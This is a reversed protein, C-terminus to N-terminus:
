GLESIVLGAIILGAGFFGTRTFTEGLFLYAFVSAFVPETAYILAARTTLVNKQYTNQIYINFVTAILAIYLIAFLLHGNWAPPGTRFFMLPVCLATTVVFEYFLLAAPDRRRTYINTLVIQFAFAIACALTLIDGLNIGAAKPKALLYLGAIALLIGVAPWLTLKKGELFYSIFPVFVVYMSTIFASKNASTYNLGITQTMFGTFVTLAIACAPLFSALRDRHIRARFLPYAVLSALAFRIFIFFTPSIFRLANKTVPFTLGWFGTIALLWIASKRELQKNQVEPM